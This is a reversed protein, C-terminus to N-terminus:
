LGIYTSGIVLYWPHTVSEKLWGLVPGNLRLAVAFKLFVGVAWVGAGVWFWRWQAHSRSRWLLVAGFGVVMMGTGSIVNFILPWPEGLTSVEAASAIKVSWTGVAEEPVIAVRYTGVRVSPVITSLGVRMSGSTAPEFIRRGTPNTVRVTVKGQSVEVTTEATLSKGTDAVDFTFERVESTPEPGFEGSEDLLVDASSTEASAAVLLALLTPCYKM